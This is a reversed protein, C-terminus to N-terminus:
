EIEESEKRIKEMAEGPKLNSRRRKKDSGTGECFQCASFYDCYLCANDQANKFYPNAEVNGM